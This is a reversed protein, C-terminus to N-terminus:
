DGAVANENGEGDKLRDATKSGGAAKEQEQDFEIMERFERFPDFLRNLFGRFFFQKYWNDIAFDPIDGHSFQPHDKYGFKEMYQYDAEQYGAFLKRFLGTPKIDFYHQHTDELERDEYQKWTMGGHDTPYTEGTCNTIMTRFADIAIGTITNGWGTIMWEMMAHEPVPNDNNIIEPLIHEMKISSDDTDEIGYVDAGNEILYRAKAVRYPNLAAIVLLNPDLMEIERWTQATYAFGTIHKSEMLQAAYLSIKNMTEIMYDAPENEEEEYNWDPVAGWTVKFIEINSPHFVSESINTLDAQDPIWPVLKLTTVDDGTWKPVLCYVPKEDLLLSLLTAERVIREKMPAILIYALDDTAMGPFLGQIHNGYGLLETYAQRETQASKKIEIIGFGARGASACLLDARITSDEDKKLRVECGMLSTDRVYGDMDKLRQTVENLLIAQPTLGYIGMEDEDFREPEPFTVAEILNVWQDKLGWIHLQIEKETVAM